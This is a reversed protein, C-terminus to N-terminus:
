TLFKIKDALLYIFLYTLTESSFMFYNYRLRFNSQGTNILAQLLLACTEKTRPFIRFIIVM